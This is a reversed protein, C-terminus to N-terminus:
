INLLRRYAANILAKSYLQHFKGFLHFLVGFSGQGSETVGKPVVVSGFYLRTSIGGDRNSDSGSSKEVMLWSRTNGTFDRLMIQNSQRGEVTWISYSDSKELSLEIAEDDKTCKFTALSLLSRELKFIATTYFAQIYKDLSIDKTIDIYYCDVFAGQEKYSTSLAHSPLESAIVKPMM